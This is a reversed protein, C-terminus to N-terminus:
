YSEGLDIKIIDTYFGATKLQITIPEAELNLWYWGHQGSYGAVISGGAADGEGEAYRTFFEEGFAPDHGHMDYYVQGSQVSWTFSMSGGQQMLAKYEVASDAAIEITLEDQRWDGSGAIFNEGNLYPLATGFEDYQLEVNDPSLYRVETVGPSRQEPVGTSAVQPAASSVATKESTGSVAAGILAGLLLTAIVVLILTPKGM